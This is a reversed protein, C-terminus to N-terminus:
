ARGLRTRLLRGVVYLVILAAVFPGFAAVPELAHPIHVDIVGRRSLMLPVGLAWTFAYALFYFSLLPRRRVFTSPMALGTLTGCNTRNYHNAFALLVGRRVAHVRSGYQTQAGGM